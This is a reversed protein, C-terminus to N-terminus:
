DEIAYVDKLDDDKYVIKESGCDPCVTTVYIYGNNQDDIIHKVETSLGEWKCDDCSVYDVVHVYNTDMILRKISGSPM